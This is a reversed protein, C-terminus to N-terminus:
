EERDRMQRHLLLGRTKAFHYVTGSPLELEKAVAYVTMDEVCIMRRMEREIATGDFRSARGCNPLVGLGLRRRTRSITTPHLGVLRAIESDPKGDLKLARIEGEVERTVKM